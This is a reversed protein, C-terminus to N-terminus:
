GKGKKVKEFYFEIEIEHIEILGYKICLNFKAQRRLQEIDRVLESRFREVTYTGKRINCSRCSPMLNDWWNASEHYGHHMIAKAIMHDVQFDRYEIGEGCYGCRGKYKQYVKERQKPTLPKTLKKVKEEMKQRGTKEKLGPKLIPNITM